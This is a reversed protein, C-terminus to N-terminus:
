GKEQRVHSFATSFWVTSCSNKLLHSTGFAPRERV